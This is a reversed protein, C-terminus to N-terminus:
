VPRDRAYDEPTDLDQLISASNFNIYTIEDKHAHLFDRMTKGPALTLVENWLGKGLLWPHGRHNQYSPILLPMGKSQYALLLTRVVGVEIQPQDGLTVLAADCEPNLERLGTQLSTLMGGLRAHSNHVARILKLFNDSLNQIPKDGLVVVIDDVDAENLISIIQGLVTTHGWALNIKPQGMRLSQGAALIVATIM